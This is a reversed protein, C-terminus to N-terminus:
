WVPYMQLSYAESVFVRMDMEAIMRTIIRTTLAEIVFNEFATGNNHLQVPPRRQCCDLAARIHKLLDKELLNKPVFSSFAICVFCLPSILPQKIGNGDVKQLVGILNSILENGLNKTLAFSKSELRESESSKLYEVILSWNYELPPITAGPCKTESCVHQIWPLSEKFSAISSDCCHLKFVREAWFGVLGPTSKITEFLLLPVKEKSEYADVIQKLLPRASSFDCLSLTKWVVVAGSAEILSTMEKNFGTFVFQVVPFIQKDNNLARVFANKEDKPWQQTLLDTLKSFEDVAIILHLQKKSVPDVFPNRNYTKLLINKAWELSYVTEKNFPFHVHSHTQVASFTDGCVSGIFRLWFFFLVHQSSELESQLVNSNNNYTMEVVRFDDREFFIRDLFLSKGHRPPNVICVFPLSDRVLHNGDSIYNLFLDEVDALTFQRVTLLWIEDASTLM